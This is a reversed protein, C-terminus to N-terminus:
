SQIPCYVKKAKIQTIKKDELIYASLYGGYVCGSDLGITKERVNLGLKAWHGYIIPRSGKYIEYWPLKKSGLKHYRIHLLTSRTNKELDEELLGAHVAIFNSEEIHLPLNMIWEHGEKGLSAKLSQYSLNHSHNLLYNEEHNGMIAEYGKERSFHVVGHSNPGKNIMDGLLIVRDKPTIKLFVHMEVLEELCGHVDGIFITRKM